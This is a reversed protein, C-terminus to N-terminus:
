AGAELEAEAQQEADAKPSWSEILADALANVEPGYEPAPEVEPGYEPALETEPIAPPEYHPVLPEDLGFIELLVSREYESSREWGARALAEEKTLQGPQYGNVAKCVECRRPTNHQQKIERERDRGGPEVQALVWRGGREAQVQLMRAGRGLAHDTLRAKIKNSSGTYHKAHALPPWLHLTYVRSQGAM